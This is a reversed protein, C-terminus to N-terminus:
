SDLLKILNQLQKYSLKPKRNPQHEQYIVKMISNSFDPRDAIDSSLLEDEIWNKHYAILALHGNNSFTLSGSLLLVIFYLWVSGLLSLLLTSIYHNAYHSGILIPLSFYFLFWLAHNTHRKKIEHSLSEVIENRPSDDFTYETKM